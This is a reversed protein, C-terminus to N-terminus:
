FKQIFNHLLPWGLISYSSIIASGSTCMFGSKERFCSFWWEEMGIEVDGSYIFDIIMKLGTASVGQLEIMQNTSERM